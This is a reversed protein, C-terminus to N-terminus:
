NVHQINPTCASQKVTGGVTFSISQALVQTNTMVFVVLVFFVFYKLRMM